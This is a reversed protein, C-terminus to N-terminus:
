EVERLLLLRPGSGCRWSIFREDAPLWGGTGEQRKGSIEKHKKDVVGPHLWECIKVREKCPVKREAEGISITRTIGLLKSCGLQYKQDSRHKFKVISSHNADMPFDEGGGAAHKISERTVMRVCPGSRGWRGLVIEKVTPTEDTEYFSIINTGMGRLNMHYGFSRDLVHLFQSGECLDRVLNENPQGHVMFLLSADALGKHPVSFFLIGAISGLTSDKSDFCQIIAEKIVLGGLSHGILILPRSHCRSRAGKVAEIFQMSFDYIRAHSLSGSLTTDYGYTFIRAENEEMDNPLFDRLWMGYMEPSRWSGFAHGALGTVAIIDITPKESNNLPTLGRFHTDVTAEFTAGPPGLKVVPPVKGGILQSFTVTAVQFRQHGGESAEPALSIYTQGATNVAITGLPSDLDQLYKQLDDRSIPEPINSIRITPASPTYAPADTM